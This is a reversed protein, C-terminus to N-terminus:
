KISRSVSTSIVDREATPPKLVKMPKRGEPDGPPAGAVSPSLQPSSLEASEELGAQGSSMQSGDEQQIRDRSPRVSKWQGSKNGSLHLECWRLSTNSRVSCSFRKLCSLPTWSGRAALVCLELADPHDIPKLRTIVVANRLWDLPVVTPGTHFKPFARLADSFMRVQPKLVGGLDM